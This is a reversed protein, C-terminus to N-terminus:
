LEYAWARLADLLSPDSKIAEAFSRLQVAAALQFEPTNYYM